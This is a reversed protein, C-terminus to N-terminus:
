TVDFDREVDPDTMAEWHEAPAWANMSQVRGHSVYYNRDRSDPDLWIMQSTRADLAANHQEFVDDKVEIATGGREITRVILGAIHTTWLQLMSSLGGGAGGQSNPGYMIFLNPFGPVTISWFARPGVGDREWKEELSVGGRGVARIPFLYKTVDFGAAAVIVDVERRWGDATVVADAEVHDIPETVLEVNDRLLTRYWDNDIIMRRAWPPYVPTLEAILDERDGLQAHIYRTLRARLADNLESFHGGDAKWQQDPVFLGTVAEGSAALWVFRDWNWYYPMHDLLWRLETTIPEGYHIQPSIWQPTRVHVYVQKAQEAIRALLQVGTSGNGVVAVSRGEVSLDDPWATTHTRTGAFDEIGPVDLDKATSFLGTAAVVFTASTTLTQGDRVIELVWRSTSEDFTMSKVDTSFRIHEYVGFDVAMDHMYQRVEPGRAFYETWPYRKVFAMQFTSSMTDVRIDPYRNISWVGGIEPRREYVDYPIGLKQLHVAMAIGSHGTGIVAVRLDDPLDPKTGGTWDSVFLPYDDFSAESRLEPFERDTIERGGLALSILSRLEDLDPDVEHLSGQNELLFRVAKEQLAPRDREVINLKSHRSLHGKDLIEIYHDYQLLEPDGTAQYLAVRLANPDAHAVARRLFDEDVPTAASVDRGSPPIDM